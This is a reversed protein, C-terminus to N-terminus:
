HDVGSTGAGRHEQSGDGGVTGMPGAAHEQEGSDARIDDFGKPFKKPNVENEGYNESWGTDLTFVDFGLQSAVPISESVIKENYDQFFPEWTNYFWPPQYSTGKKMLVQSTYSPMVWHPDAM